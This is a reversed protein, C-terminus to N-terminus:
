PSLFLNKLFGFYLCILILGFVTNEVFGGIEVPAVHVVYSDDDEFLSEWKREVKVVRYSNEVINPSMYGEGLYFMYAALTLLAPIWLLEATNPQQRVTTIAVITGVSCLLTLVFLVVKRSTLFIMALFLPIIWPLIKVVASFPM